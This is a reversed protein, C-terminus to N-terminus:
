SLLAPQPLRTVPAMGLVPTGAGMEVQVMRPCAGAAEPGRRNAAVKLHGIEDSLVAANGRTSAWFNDASLKKHEAARDLGHGARFEGVTLNTVKRREVTIM